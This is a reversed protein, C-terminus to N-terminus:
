FNKSLKQLFANVTDKSQDLYRLQARGKQMINVNVLALRNLLNTVRKVEFQQLPSLPMKNWYSLQTLYKPIENELWQNDRLMAEIRTVESSLNRKDFIHRLTKLQMEALVLQASIDRAFDELADIPLPDIQQSM